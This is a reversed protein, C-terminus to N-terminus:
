RRGWVVRLIGALDPRTEVGEFGAETLLAGVASAQGEGVELALAGADLTATTSTGAIRPSSRGCRTLLTRIAELGNPGALLAERPEWRTVEPQLDAWEAGSVYPLNAVVLDFRRAPGSEGEGTDAGPLMGEVFEVRDTLGLREANARAVDLATV